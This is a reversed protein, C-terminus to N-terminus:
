GETCPALVVQCVRLRNAVVGGTLTPPLLASAQSALVDAVNVQGPAFGAPPATTATTVILPGGVGETAKKPSESAPELSM